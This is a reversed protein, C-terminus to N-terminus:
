WTGAFISVVGDAGDGKVIECGGSLNEKGPALKIRSM